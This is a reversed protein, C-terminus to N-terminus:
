VATGCNSCFKPAGQFKEGCESCFNKKIPTEEKSSSSLDSEESVTDSINKEKEIEESYNVLNKSESTLSGDENLIPTDVILKIGQALKLADMVTHKEDQTYTKWDMNKTVIRRLEQNKDKIYNRLMSLIENIQLTINEINELEVKAVDLKASITRAESLNSYANNLKEQAKAGFIGGALLLAPGAVLGGLVATGLAIGGGGAALAGGGLWALTANTAAIGSLGAISAGTSAAGLAGVAGYSGWALLTGAAIGSLGGNLIEMASLSVYEMSHLTDSKYNLNKIEDTTLVESLTIDKIKSFYFIFNRLNDSCAQLKNEGFKELAFATDKRQSELSNKAINLISEAREMVDDAEKSDVVGKVGKAVGVAATTAAVGLVVKAGLAGLVFPLPM